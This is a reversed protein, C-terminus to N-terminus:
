KKEFGYDVCEYPKGNMVVLRDDKMVGEIINSEGIFNLLM